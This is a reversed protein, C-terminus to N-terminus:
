RKASAHNILASFPLQSLKRYVRTQLAEKIADADKPRPIEKGTEMHFFHTKVSEHGTRDYSRIDKFGWGWATRFERELARLNGTSDFCYSTYEAFDQGLGQVTALAPQNSKQELYAIESWDPDGLPVKSDNEYEKWQGDGLEAFIRPSYTSPEIGCNRAFESLEVTSAPAAVVLGLLLTASLGLHLTRRKVGEV